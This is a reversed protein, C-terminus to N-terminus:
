SFLLDSNHLYMVNITTAEVIVLLIIMMTSRITLSLANVVFSCFHLVKKLYFAGNDNDLANKTTFKSM